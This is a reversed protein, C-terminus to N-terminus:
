KVLGPAAAAIRAGLWALGGLFTILAALVTALIKSVTSRILERAEAARQETAAATRELRDIRTLLGDKGNGFLADAQKEFAGDARGIFGDLREGQQAVLGELAGVRATIGNLADLHFQCLETAREARTSPRSTAKQTL